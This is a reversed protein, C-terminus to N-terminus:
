LQPTLTRLFTSVRGATKSTSLCTVCIASRESDSAAMTITNMNLTLQRSVTMVKMEM